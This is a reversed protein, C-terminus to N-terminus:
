KEPVPYWYKNGCSTFKGSTRYDVLCPNGQKNVYRRYVIHADILFGAMVLALALAAGIFVARFLNWLFWAIYKM